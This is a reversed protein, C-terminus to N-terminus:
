KNHIPTKGAHMYIWSTYPQHRLLGYSLTQDGPVLTEFLKSIDHLHPTPSMSNPMPISDTSKVAPGDNWGWNNQSM